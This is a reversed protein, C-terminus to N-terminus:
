HHLYPWLRTDVRDLPTDDVHRVVMCAAALLGVFAFLGIMGIVMHFATPQPWRSGVDAQDHSLLLPPALSGKTM